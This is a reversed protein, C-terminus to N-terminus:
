KAPAPPAAAAARQAQQQVLNVLAHLNQHDIYLHWAALALAVGLAGCALPLLVRWLILRRM